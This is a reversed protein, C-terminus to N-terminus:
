SLDVPEVPPGELRSNNARVSSTSCSTLISGLRDRLRRKSESRSGGTQSTAPASPYSESLESSAVSVSSNLEVYFISPPHELGSPTDEPNPASLVLGYEV